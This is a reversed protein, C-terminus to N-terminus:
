GGIPESRLSRRIQNDITRIAEKVQSASKRTIMAIEDPEFGEVYHLDFVEQEFTPLAALARDMASLLGSQATSGEYASSPWSSHRTSGSSGERQTVAERVLRYIQARESTLKQRGSMAALKDKAEGVLEAIERESVPNDRSRGRNAARRAFRMLSPRHSEFFADRIDAASQPALEDEGPAPAFAPQKRRAKRKWQPEERLREKLAKLEKLLAKVASSLAAIVSKASKDAHLIHSPLRLTLVARHEEKRPHRELEVLLHVADSPFRQLHRELARIKSRIRERLLPHRHLRRTVINWNFHGSKQKLDTTMTQHAAKNRMDGFLPRNAAIQQANAQRKLLNM